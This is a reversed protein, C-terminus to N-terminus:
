LRASWAPTKEEAAASPHGLSDTKDTKDVHGSTVSSASNVERLVDDPPPFVGAPSAMSLTESTKLIEFYRPRGKGHGTREEDLKLAGQEVAEMLRDNAISKSNIGLASKLAAVTVKVSKDLAGGMAEVAKVVAIIEKRTKVGYLSAVGEDFTGHAHRYDDITAIIRGKADTERQASYLVASTKIATILGGIDRRIRLQMARPFAKLRKEYAAYVASGFPVSVDYPAEIELCQQYDLWPQLDPKTEEGDGNLLLGKVVAMTQEASEDADSTMLRTLMESEINDRASTIIVPVPGNRKIKVTVPTAGPQPIAVLHDVCGESILQRLMITLPSEVGNKEALIAAEQVYLVKHKLADENGGGFYVLSMPSGSSMAIVSQSPILSFVNTLLFNKGGAAAGRRLLCLPRKRLLRSSAALYAGRIAAGEGIVGLGHVVDEMDDLLTPSKAIPEASRRLREREKDVERKRREEEERHLQEREELSPKAAEAAESRIQALLGRLAKIGVGVEKRLAKILMEIQFDSLGGVHAEALIARVGAEDSPDLERIKKLLADYSPSSKKQGEPQNSVCPSSPCSPCSPDSSKAEEGPQFAETAKWRGRPSRKSARRTRPASRPSQTGTAFAREIKDCYDAGGGVNSRGADKLAELAYKPDLEGGAALSGIGLANEGVARDREGPGANALATCANDLAKLGYRSGDGNVCDQRSVRHTKPLKIPAVMDLLWEPADAPEVDSVVVYPKGDRESPPFVIAGGEGKCEVGKPLGKIPCGIPRGPPWRYIWHEGGSPTMHVRTPTAGHKAELARWAGIGDHAHPPSADIDIAFVGMRRGMHVAILAEPKWRWWRAIEDLDTTASYVGHESLPTKDGNPNIPFVPVGARALAQAAGLLLAASTAAAIAASWEDPKLAIPFPQGASWAAKVAKRAAAKTVPPDSNRTSDPPDSM